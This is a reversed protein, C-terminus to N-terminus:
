TPVEQPASELAMRLAAAAQRAAAVGPLSDGEGHPWGRDCLSALGPDFPVSGLLPVPLPDSGAAFLPRVAGCGPCAYGAMNEVQGLVRNGSGRLADLSRAVVRRAVASPTTVLVFVARPGLLGALQLTREAGPPLDLLLADLEGWHTGGLVDALLTLERTARWTQEEGRSVTAFRLAEEPGLLSGLSLVGLGDQRRPAELGLPGPIWPAGALGAMQAQCPGNLDADLVTVRWREDVLARALALTLTSKGVGGKGSGIAVLHRVGALAREVARHREGVQELVASGGDGAIDRYRKV